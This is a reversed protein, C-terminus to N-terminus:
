GTASNWKKGSRKLSTSMSPWIQMARSSGEPVLKPERAVILRAVEHLNYEPHYQATLPLPSPEDSDDIFVTDWLDFSLARVRPM